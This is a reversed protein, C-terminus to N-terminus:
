QDSTATLEAYHAKVFAMHTESINQDKIFEANGSMRFQYGLMADGFALSAALYDRPTFGQAKVTAECRPCTRLEAVLEDLTKPVHNAKTRMYLPPADEIDGMARQAAALRKVLAMDLRVAHITPTDAPNEMGAWAPSAFCAITALLAFFLRPHRAHTTRFRPM